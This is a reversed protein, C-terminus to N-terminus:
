DDKVCRVSFGNTKSDYSVFACGNGLLLYYAYSSNDETSSWFCSFDGFLNYDGAYYAGAPLAGFGFEDLGKNKYDDKWATSNAILPLFSDSSSSKNNDVYTLLNNFDTKTPLRWGPPCARKANEWTYLRGYKKDNDDDRNPSYYDVGGYALNEAMWIKNGIKVTKYTKGDRPDTFTDTTGKCDIAKRKKTVLLSNQAEEWLREVFELPIHNDSIYTSWEPDTVLEAWDSYIKM